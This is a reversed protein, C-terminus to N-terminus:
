LRENNEDAFHFLRAMHFLAETSYQLLLLILGLRSLSSPFVLSVKGARCGLAARPSEPQERHRPEATWKEPPM